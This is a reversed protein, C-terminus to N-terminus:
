KLEDVKYKVLPFGKAHALGEGVQDKAEGVGGGREVSDSVAGM